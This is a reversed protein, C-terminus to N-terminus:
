SLTPKTSSLAVHFLVLGMTTDYLGARLTLDLDRVAVIPGYRKTVGRLAVTETM